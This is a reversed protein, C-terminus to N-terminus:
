KAVVTAVSPKSELDAFNLQIVEYKSGMKGEADKWSMLPNHPIPEDGFDSIQFYGKPNSKGKPSGVVTVRKGDRLIAFGKVGSELDCEAKWTVTVATDGLQAIVDTPSPPVTTDKVSGTQCYELWLKGYGESPLWHCQKADGKASKTSRLELTKPEALWRSDDENIPLLAVGTKPLREKLMADFFAIALTRSERCDHTSKPDVALAWLAGQPRYTEFAKLSKVSVEYFQSGKESEKIGYNFVIPVALAAKEFETIAGSRGWVAVVREPFKSALECAWISGGSHGWIAWPAAELEPHESVKAFTKLAELLARETGNKPFCWEGCSGSYTLKSGLLAADHKKALAQWQLDDSHHIGDRGCGHQRIIVARITKVGDPIWIRFAASKYKETAKPPVDLDYSTALASGGFIFSVLCVVIRLM